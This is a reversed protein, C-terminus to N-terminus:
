IKSFKHIERGTNSEIKLWYNGAPMEEIDIRQVDNTQTKIIKGTADIITLTNISSIDGSVTLHNWSPIPYLSYEKTEIEDTSVTIVDVTQSNNEMNGDISYDVGLIHMSLTSKPINIFSGTVLASEGPGIEMTINNRHYRDSVLEANNFNQSYLTFNNIADHGLNTITCTYEFEVQFQGMPTALVQLNTMELDKRDPSFPSDIIRKQVYSFKAPLFSPSWLGYFFIQDGDIEFNQVDFNAIEEEKEMQYLLSSQLDDDSYKYVLYQDETETLYDFGTENFVFDIPSQVMSDSRVLALENFNYRHMTNGELEVLLNRYPDNDIRDYEGIDLSLTSTTNLPSVVGNHIQYPIRLPSLHLEMTGEFGTVSYINDEFDLYYLKNDASVCYKEFGPIGPFIVDIIDVYDNAILKVSSFGITNGNRQVRHVGIGFIDYDWPDILHIERSEKGMFKSKSAYQNYESVLQTIEKPTNGIIKELTNMPRNENGMLLYMSGDNIFQGHHAFGIRDHSLHEDWNFQANAFQFCLISSLLTLILKM